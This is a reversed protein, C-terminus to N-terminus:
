WLDMDGFEKLMWKDFQKSLEPGIDEKWKGVKGTRIFSESNDVLKFQAFYTVDHEYNVAKNEKMSEFSVHQM